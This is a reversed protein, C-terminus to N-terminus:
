SFQYSDHEIQSKDPAVQFYHFCFKTGATGVGGCKQAIEPLEVLFAAFGDGGGFLEFGTAVLQRLLDASELAFAFVGGLQHVFGAGEFVLEVVEVLGGCCEVLLHPEREGADGIEGAVFDGDAFGFFVVDDDLGPAFLRVNSKVGLGCQSSPAFRPM